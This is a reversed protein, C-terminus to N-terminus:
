DKSAGVSHEGWIKRVYKIVIELVQDIALETTDIYVADRAAKLPSHLRRSDRIDRETLEDVVQALKANVGARKLQLFRRKSREEISATLYIKLKADPFVETGMDRGDTVLGPPQLFARQNDILAIRLEPLVAIRSADQGCKQTRIEDKAEDHAKINIHQALEVLAATHSLDIHRRRAELAVLRYIIGSDLIHWGLYSALRHCLTGKGTGSPGDMTIVPIPLKNMIM